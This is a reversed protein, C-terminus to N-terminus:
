RKWTTGGVVTVGPYATNKFVYGAEEANPGSLYGRIQTASSASNTMLGQYDVVGKGSIDYKDKGSSVSLGTTFTRDVFNINLQGSDVNARAESGNSKQVYAESNALAFGVIGETPMVLTAGKMRAVAYDGVFQPTDTNNNKISAPMVGQGAVISWRGWFVEQPKPPAPTPDTIVVPPPTVIPPPTPTGNDAGSSPPTGAGVPRVANLSLATREPDLNVQAPGLASGQTVKGVPEDSRPKENQDPSLSPNNLLQPATQGRRVQLLMGAQGAFLERSANGECPGVGESSCGAAFPSMVVGGSVVVVRSTQQDTYVIFDTGRVGIAAVPTNFRFNQRAQKVAKGSIARAVGQSLELKVHTNSPNAKDVRYTVVRAKSNPRLILFGEDTTKMYVYGDAGTTVEDGEQVAADVVAAHNALQVQGTVFIVRGAEGGWALSATLLLGAGIIHNRLM